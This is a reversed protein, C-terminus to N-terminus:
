VIYNHCPVFCKNLKDCDRTLCAKVAVRSRL